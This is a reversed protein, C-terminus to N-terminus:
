PCQSRVRNKKACDENIRCIRRQAIEWLYDYMTSFSIAVWELIEAWLIGHDSSGPQSCDMSDCLTPCLQTVLVYVCM